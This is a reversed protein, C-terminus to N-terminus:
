RSWALLLAALVLAGLAAVSVWEWAPVGRPREGRAAARMLSAVEQSDM